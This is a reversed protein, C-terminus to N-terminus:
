EGASCNQEPDKDFFALNLTALPLLPRDGAEGGGWQQLLCGLPSFASFWTSQWYRPVLTTSADLVDVLM